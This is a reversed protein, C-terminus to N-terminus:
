TTSWSSTTASRTSRRATAPGGPDDNWHLDPVRDPDALAPDGIWVWVFRHREVIPYSKVCAVPNITDQSPM